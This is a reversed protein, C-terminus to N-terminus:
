QRAVREPPLAREWLHEFRAIRAAVIAPDTTITEKVDREYQHNQHHPQPQLMVVLGQDQILYDEILRDPSITLLTEPCDRFLVRVILGCKQQTAFVPLFDPHDARDIVFIRRVTVARHQVLERQKALYPGIEEPQHSRNRTDKWYGVMSSLCDLTGGPKTMEIGPTGFTEADSPTTHHTGGLMQAHDRMFDHLLKRLRLAGHKAFYPHGALWHAKLNHLKATLEDVMEIVAAWPDHPAQTHNQQGSNTFSSGARLADLAVLVDTLSPFTEPLEGDRRGAALNALLKHLTRVTFETPKHGKRIRNLSRYYSAGLEAEGPKGAITHMLTM